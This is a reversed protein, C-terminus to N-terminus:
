QIKALEFSGNRVVIYVLPKIVDHNKDLAISGTVGLVAPNITGIGALYQQISERDTAGNKLAEAIINIADYSGAGYGEPLKNFKSQFANVFEKARPNDLDPHFFSAVRFNEVADGGISILGYNYLGDPGFFQLDLNMEKAQRAILAGPTYYSAVIVGDPNLASIKTLVGTFDQDTDFHGEVALIEAGLQKAKEVFNNTFATPGDGLAKLIVLRKKNLREVVYKACEHGNTIDTICTRFFYDYSGSLAPSTSSPSICVLHYQEYIPMAALTSTSDYHGVVALIDDNIALRQAVTAAERPIMQDDEIVLELKQGNIGGGANINDVAIEAGNRIFEGYQANPGTVPAAVGIKLTKILTETDAGVFATFVLTITLVFLLLLIPKFYKKM